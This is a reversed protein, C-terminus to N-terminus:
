ILKNVKTGDLPTPNIPNPNNDVTPLKANSKKSSLLYVVIAVVLVALIIIIM